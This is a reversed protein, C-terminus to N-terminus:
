GPGRGRTPHRDKGRPDEKTAEQNSRAVRLLSVMGVYFGLVGGICVFVFRTGLRNDVWLGLLPPVVMELAIASVQSAWAAAM